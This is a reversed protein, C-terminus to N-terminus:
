GGISISKAKALLDKLPLRYEVKKVILQGRPPATEFNYCHAMSFEIM